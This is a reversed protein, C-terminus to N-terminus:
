FVLLGCGRFPRVILNVTISRMCQDAGCAVADRKKTPPELGCAIQHVIVAIPLAPVAMLQYLDLWQWAACRCRTRESFAHLPVSAKDVPDYGSGRGRWYFVSEM